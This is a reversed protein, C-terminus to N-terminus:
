GVDKLRLDLPAQLFWYKQNQNSMDSLHKALEEQSPEEPNFEAFKSSVAYCHEQYDSEDMYDNIGDVILWGNWKNADEVTKPQINVTLSAPDFNGLGPLSPTPFTITKRFDRLEIDRLTDFSEQLTGTDPIWYQYDFGMISQLVSEFTVDPAIGGRKAGERTIYFRPQGHQEVHLEVSFSKRPQGDDIGKEDINSIKIDEGDKGIAKFRQDTNEQLALINEPLTILDDEIQHDRGSGKMENIDYHINGSYNPEVLLVREPVLPDDTVTIRYIGKESIFIKGEQLAELGSNTLKGDLTLVGLEACWQIVRRGIKEPRNALLHSVIDEPLVERGLDRALLLIAMIEERKVLKQIEAKIIYRRVQINRKLVINM